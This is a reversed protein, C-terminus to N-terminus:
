GAFWGYLLLAAGVAFYALYRQINGNQCLGLSFGAAQTIVGCLAMAGGVVRREIGASLVQRALAQLPRGVALQFLADLHWAGMLRQHLWFGAGNHAIQQCAPHLGRGYLGWAVLMGLGAVATAFAMLVLELHAPVETIHLSSTSLAPALWRNLWEHGGLVHPWNLAGAALAGVALLAQPWRMSAPAEHPQAARSGTPRWSGCFFVRLTLRSMYFATLGSAVTALLWLTKASGAFAGAFPGSGATFAAHLIADKSVFGSTPPVGVIALTAAVFAAATWPMFRALGGMRRIDQEGGLNHIVSGAALFLCAKFLAHTIVHTLAVSWAGLGAALVMLGLQSVTSYALVKKLDVQVTAVTAAMLATIAGLWAATLMATPSLLFLFGMRAMLYIGATVMTAAHILASVPTPGAMADPLWIYLPLQASKGSAALVLLLCAGTAVLPTIGGAQASTQLAPVVLSGACRWLLMMAGIFGMDGIRNVIFAKRGAAAKAPDNWWFGVLLYSAFGVGEWGVFIWPLSDALVLVLMAAIFLNLAAFYRGVGAEHAMYGLSYVHILLGVSLIVLMMTASLADLHWAIDVQLGGLRLWPALLSRTSTPPSLAALDGVALCALALAAAVASCAIVGIWRRPMRGGLLANIIAGMAPLAVVWSLTQMGVASQLMPLAGAQIEM